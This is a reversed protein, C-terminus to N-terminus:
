RRGPHHGLDVLTRNPCTETGTIEISRKQKPLDTVGYDRVANGTKPVGRVFIFDM